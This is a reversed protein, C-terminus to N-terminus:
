KECSLIEFNNEPFFRSVGNRTISCINYQAPMIDFTHSFVDVNESSWKKLDCERFEEINM